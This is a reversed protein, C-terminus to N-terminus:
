ATRRWISVQIYPPMNNHAAGGGTEVTDYGMASGGSALWAHTRATGANTYTGGHNHAPLENVTLKHEREGGTQGIIDSAQSAWLFGGTLREWTGGFLTGPDTHSYAIYISGVPYALLADSQWAGWVTASSAIRTWRMRGEYIVQRPLGGSSDQWPIITQMPGYASSPSTFGVATLKKFEWVTGKGYYTMYWEPTENDDRTDEMGTAGYIANGNMYIDGGVDIAHEREAVKLLGISTGDPGWNMLTFATSASTGRTSTGHSDKAEIEVEYSENGDAAFIHEYDTLSYVGTIAGLTVRTFSSATPKKYKLTYTATNINKLPTIAASFTVKIYEGQDSETGDADCRHVAVKSVKPPTYALVKMTYSASGSRGRADTVLATVPSDGDEKLAGITFEASTYKSGDISVNYSMIPSNYITTANIKVKIKSLGQVPQGYIDDIGAVDELILVCSPKVSTPIACSITKTSSGMNTSDLYTTITFTISVSTGNIKQSALSLPPTWSISTSSSKTAITGTASGCKYTITHTFDSSQRAVNLTMATGLTGNSVALSNQRPIADLTGTGSGSVAAIWGDFDIRFTQSFSYSFTKKGDADHAITTTGSALTKTTNNTIGVTNTGRYTTGNITVSWPKSASSYIAGSSTAILEMKWDITTSNNLVSQSKETWTFRLSDWSTVLVTKSGSTAM